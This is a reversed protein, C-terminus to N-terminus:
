NCEWFAFTGCPLNKGVGSSCPIILEGCSLKATHPPKKETISMRLINELVVPSFGTTYTSILFFLPNPTLVNNCLEVFEHLKDELQWVEGGSGRGYSPPDMIIGDYLSGRRIEREVFKIVDDTIYRVNRNQLGSLAVNEKAISNMGKSSDVHCVEANAHACAVTAGGTYGFLNLVRVRERGSARIKESVRRWNPSQEPFIGMHKFDTPQIHFKLENYSIAWRKPTPKKIEWNGGGTRSRHYHM